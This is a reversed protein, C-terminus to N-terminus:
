KSSPGKRALGTFIVADVVRLHLQVCQRGQERGKFFQAQLNSWGCPSLKICYDACVGAALRWWRSCQFSKKICVGHM